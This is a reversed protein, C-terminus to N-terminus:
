QKQVTFHYYNQGVKKKLVANQDRVEALRHMGVIRGKGSRAASISFAILRGSHIPDTQNVHGSLIIHGTQCDILRYGIYQTEVKGDEEVFYTSFYLIVDAGIISGLEKLSTRNIRKTVNSETNEGVVGSNDYSQELLVEDIKKREIVNHGDFILYSQIVEQYFAKLEANIFWYEPSVVINLTDKKIAQAIHCNLESEAACGLVFLLVVLFVKFKV